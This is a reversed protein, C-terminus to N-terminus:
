GSQLNDPQERAPFPVLLNLMSLCVSQGLQYPIHFTCIIQRLKKKKIILNGGQKIFILAADVYYQTKTQQFM